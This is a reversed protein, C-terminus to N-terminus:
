GHKKIRKNIYTQSSRSAKKTYAIDMLYKCWKYIDNGNVSGEHCRIEITKRSNFNLVNIAEYRNGSIGYVPACKLQSLNYKFTNNSIFSCFSNEQRDEPVSKKLLHQFAYLNKYCRIFNDNRMDLHVHLGCTENVEARIEKLFNHLLKSVKFIEEQKCLVKFEYTDGWPSRISGDDDVEIYKKIGHNKLIKQNMYTRDFPSYCEIEIGIYRVKTKPTM